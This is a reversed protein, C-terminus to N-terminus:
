SMPGMDKPIGNIQHGDWAIRYWKSYADTNAPSAADYILLDYDGPPVTEPIVIPIGNINADEATAIATDSYTPALAMVANTNDWIWGSFANVLRFVPNTLAEYCIFSM